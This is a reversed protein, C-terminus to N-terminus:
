RAILTDVANMHQQESLAINAFTICGWKAQLVRYVDRAVKEEQKVFLISSADAATLASAISVPGSMLVAAMIAKIVKMTKM